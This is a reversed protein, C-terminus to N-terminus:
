HVTVLTFSLDEISLDRETGTRDVIKPTAILLQDGWQLTVTIAAPPMELGLAKITTPHRPNLANIPAETIYRKAEELSTRKFTVSALDSKLMSPSFANGIYNM